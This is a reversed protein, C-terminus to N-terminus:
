YICQIYINNSLLPVPLVSFSVDTNSLRVVRSMQSIFSFSLSSKVCVFNTVQNNWLWLEYRSLSALCSVREVSFKLFEAQALGGTDARVHFSLGQWRNTVKRRRKYGKSNWRKWVFICFIEQLSAQLHQQPSGISDSAYYESM